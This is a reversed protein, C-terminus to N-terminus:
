DMNANDEGGLFNLDTIEKLYKINNQNMYCIDKFKCYECSINKFKMVKPDIEFDASLIMDRADDIKKDVLEELKDMQEKTLLKSYSSFGNSNKSLSKVVRSNEYTSDFENLLEEDYLSYGQLRLNDEKQLIYDKKTDIKPIPTLIKQLYFGVVESNKLNGNKSLYLYVPLQLNLGYYCNSLNLDQIGTKYDVIVLLTKDKYNHTLLKDIFGIFKVKITKDKNIEFKNEYLADKFNSYSYHKKISEIVFLLDEKIKEIFFEEKNTFDKEKIYNYYEKEFDFNDEFCKSLIDHFLNGIFTAFTEEYKDLKLINNLYYRFKCKYFNDISSYSLTLENNILKYLKEKDLGKFKNDYSMYKIDKYNSFLVELRNTKEGYKVFNDLDKSLLLKNLSNSYSLSSEEKKVDFGLEEILTSPYYENFPTKDKYTIILNKISKINNIISEKEIKNIKFSTSIGLNEKEKDSLYDEDKKIVPYNGENFGLLFAYEDDKINNINKIEIENEYLSRNTKITKFKSTLMEKKIDKDMEFSYKNLTDIIKNYIYLNDENNLNIEPLTDIDKLFDQVIKTSYISEKNTDINLNFMNFVQKLIFNYESPINIIKIKNIDIGEEILERIKTSVFVVEDFINNFKYIDHKNDNVKKKIIEYDLNKLLKLDYENIFDYGYIYIKRTKIYDYFYENYILLDKIEEKIKKLEILKQNNFTEENIYYLNDLITKANDYKYNYNKMLYYIAREDYTFTLNNIFEKLSFFKIDILLKKNTLELLLKKKINEPVIYVRNDELVM